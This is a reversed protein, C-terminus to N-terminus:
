GNISSIGNSQPTRHSNCRIVFRRPYLSLNLMESALYKMNSHPFYYQGNRGGRCAQQDFSCDQLGMFVKRNLLSIMGLVTLKVTNYRKSFNRLTFFICLVWVAFGAILEREHCFNDRLCCLFIHTLELILCVQGSIILLYKMLQFQQVGTYRSTKTRWRKVYTYLCHSCVHCSLYREEPKTDGAHCPTGNPDFTTHFCQFCVQLQLAKQQLKLQEM